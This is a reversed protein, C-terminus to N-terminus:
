TEIPCSAEGTPAHLWSRMSSLMVLECRPWPSAIAFPKAAM